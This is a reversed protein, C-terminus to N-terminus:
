SMRQAGWSPLVRCPSFECKGTGKTAKRVRHTALDAERLPLPVRSIPTILSMTVKLATELSIWNGCSVFVPKTKERTRLAAGYVTTGDTILSYSGADDGPPTYTLGDVAFYTKAVGMTPRNLYFSAHTAIGMHRPHLYGNGDFMFVDPQTTLKKAAELVLPLERFALYSPVYPADVSGTAQATELIDHTRFDVVVICCAGQEQGSSDTWYATDAGAAIHLDEIPNRDTLDVQDVWHRQEHEWEQVGM